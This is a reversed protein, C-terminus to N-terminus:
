VKDEEHFVTMYKHGKGMERKLNEGEKLYRRKIARLVRENKEHLAQERKKADEERIRTLALDGIKVLGDAAVHDKELNTGQCEPDEGRVFHYGLQKKQSVNAEDLRVLRYRYGKQLKAGKLIESLIGM